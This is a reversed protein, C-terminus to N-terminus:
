SGAKFLPLSRLDTILGDRDVYTKPDAKGLNSHSKEFLLTNTVLFWNQPTLLHIRLRFMRFLEPSSCEYSQEWVEGTSLVSRFANSFVGRLVEPIADFLDSGIVSETALEPAGNSKAFSDWAPNCYIFRCHSDVVYSM